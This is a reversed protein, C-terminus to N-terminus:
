LQKGAESPFESIHDLFPDYEQRHSMWGQTLYL